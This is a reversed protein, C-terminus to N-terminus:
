TYGKGSVSKILQNSIVLKSTNQKLTLCRPKQHRLIDERYKCSALPGEASDIRENESRVIPRTRGTEKRTNPEIKIM